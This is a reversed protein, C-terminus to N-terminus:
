REVKRYGDALLALETGFSSIVTILVMPVLDVGTAVAVTACLIGVLAAVPLLTM